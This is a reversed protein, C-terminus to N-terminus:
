KERKNYEIKWKFFDLEKKHKEEATLLKMRSEPPNDMDALLRKATEDGNAARTKLRSLYDDFSITGFDDRFRNAAQTEEQNSIDICHETRASDYDAFWKMVVAYDLRGFIKNERVSNKLVYKIEEVKLYGYDEILDDVIEAIQADTLNREVNVLEALWLLANALVARTKVKGIYSKLEWINPTDSMIM